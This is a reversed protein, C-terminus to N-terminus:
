DRRREGEERHRRSVGERCCGPQQGFHAWSRFPPLAAHTQRRTGLNARTKGGCHRESARGHEREEMSERKASMTWGCHLVVSRTHRLVGTGTPIGHASQLSAVCGRQFDTRRCEELFFDPLACGTLELHQKGGASQEEIWHGRRSLLGSHQSHNGAHYM